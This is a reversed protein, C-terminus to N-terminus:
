NRMLKGHTSLGAVGFNCSQGSQRFLCLNVILDSSEHCTMCMYIDMKVSIIHWSHLMGYSESVQFWQMHEMEISFLM